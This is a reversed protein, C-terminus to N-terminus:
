VKSWCMQDELPVRRRLIGRKHAVFHKKTFDEFNFHTIESALTV